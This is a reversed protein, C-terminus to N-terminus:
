SQKTIRITRQLRKPSGNFQKRLIDVAEVREDASRTLWYALNKGGEDKQKIIKFNNKKMLFESMRNLKVNNVDVYINYCFYLEIEM